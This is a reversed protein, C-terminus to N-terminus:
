YLFNGVFVYMCANGIIEFQKYLLPIVYLIIEQLVHLSVHSSSRRNNSTYSKTILICKIDLIALLKVHLFM